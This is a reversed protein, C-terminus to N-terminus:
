LGACGGEEGEDCASGSGGVEGHMVFEKARLLCHLWAGWDGELAMTGGGESGVYDKGGERWDWCHEGQELSPKSSELAPDQEAAKLPSSSSCSGLRAQVHEAKQQGGGHGPSGPTPALHTQGCCLLSARSGPVSVGTGQASSLISLSPARSRACECVPCVRTHQMPVCVCVCQSLANRVAAGSDAAEQLVAQNISGKGLWMWARSHSRRCGHAGAQGPILIPHAQEDREAVGVGGGEGEKQEWENM